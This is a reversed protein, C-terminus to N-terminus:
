LLNEEFMKTRAESLKTSFLNLLKLHDKSVQYGRSIERTM